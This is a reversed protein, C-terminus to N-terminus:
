AGKTAREAGFFPSDSPSYPYSATKRTMETARIRGIPGNARRNGDDRAIQENSESQQRQYHNPLRQLVRESM